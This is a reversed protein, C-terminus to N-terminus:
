ETKALHFIYDSEPFQDVTVVHRAAEALQNLRLEIKKFNFGVINHISRAVHLLASEYQNVEKKKIFIKLAKDITTAGTRYGRSRREKEYIIIEKLIGCLRRNESSGYINLARSDDKIRELEITDLTKNKYRRLLSSPSIRGNNSKIVRAHAITQKLAEVIKGSVAGSLDMEDFLSLEAGVERCSLVHFGEGLPSSDSGATEVFKVYLPAHMVNIHVLILLFGALIITVIIPSNMPAACTM